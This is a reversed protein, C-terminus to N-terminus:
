RLALQHKIIWLIYFQSVYIGTYSLLDPNVLCLTATFRNAKYETTIQTRSTKFDRFQSNLKVRVKEWPRVNVNTSIHGRPDIDVILLPSYDGPGIRDTGVFKSGFEYNSTENTSGILLSYSFFFFFSQKTRQQYCIPYGWFNNSIIRQM